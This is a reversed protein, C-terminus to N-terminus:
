HRASRKTAYSLSLQLRIASWNPRGFRSPRHISDSGHHPESLPHSAIDQRGHGDDDAHPGPSAYPLRRLLATRDMDFDDVNGLIGGLLIYDFRQADEPTLEQTAESDLLCIRELPIGLGLVSRPETAFDQAAQLNTVLFNNAGVAGRIRRYEILCWRFLEEEMHEVIFKAEKM